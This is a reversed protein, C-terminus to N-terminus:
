KDKIGHLAYESSLKFDISDKMPIKRGEEEIMKAYQQEQKYMEDGSTLDPDLFFSIWKSNSSTIFDKHHIAKQFAEILTDITIINPNSFRLVTISDKSYYGERFVIFDIDIVYEDEKKKILSIDVEKTEENINLSAIKINLSTGPLAGKIRIVDAIHRLVYSNITVNM